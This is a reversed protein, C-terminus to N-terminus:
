YFRSLSLELLQVQGTSKIVLGTEQDIFRPNQEIMRTSTMLSM